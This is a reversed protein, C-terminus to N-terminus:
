LKRFSDANRHPPEIYPLNLIDFYDQEEKLSIIKDGDYLFGERQELGCKLVRKMIMHSFDANGTRILVINGWNDHTCMSLEVKVGYVFRQTYKGTPEGKLKKWSNIKTVFEPYVEYGTLQGFMDKVPDRRPICVIDLDSCVPQLRRVSGCVLIRECLPELDHVVQNAKYTAEALTM